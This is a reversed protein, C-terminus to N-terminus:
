GGWICKRSGTLSQGTAECQYVSEDNGCIDSDGGAVRALDLETLRRGLVRVTEKRLALRRNQKDLRRM